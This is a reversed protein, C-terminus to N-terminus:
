KAALMATAAEKSLPKAFLYGQGYECRLSRLQILQKNTEVGEAVVDIGLNWALGVITHVIELQEGDTDVRSIFSRDIKLTDIPFRHLYALSSYGTGFDDLSLRIGLAQLERLMRAAVEPNDMIASETIELKLSSPNLGTDTLIQRIQEVLNLQALQKVSLNVSMTLPRNAFQQKWAQMQQCAESLVMEGISVVLGTEEAIPIFEGPFVLGREPHQWRVLAEFGVVELTKLSVIPQYHLCFEPHPILAPLTAVTPTPPADALARRLDNELRLRTLTQHQMEADFIAFRKDGKAKARHLATDARRVLEEPQEIDPTSLVIGISTATFINQGKIQFPIALQQQISEAVQTVHALDQVQELLVTFEDSGFRALADGPQLCTAIRQAIAVLLQDGVLYGLSNNIVKFGELDFFLVAFQVQQQKALKLARQLYEMFLTRNPLGTLPDHLIHHLLKEEVRKRITIDRVIVLLLVDEDFIVSQISIEVPFSSNDKRYHTTEFLRPQLTAQQLQSNIFSAITSDHLCHLTLNFFEQRCYGYIGLAADNVEVIQGDRHTFFVSDRTQQWYLQYRRLAAASPESALLPSPPEELRPERLSNLAQRHLFTHDPEM